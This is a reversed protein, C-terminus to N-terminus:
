QAGQVRANGHVDSMRDIGGSELYRKSDHSALSRFREGDLPSTRSALKESMSIVLNGSPDLRSFAEIRDHSLREM